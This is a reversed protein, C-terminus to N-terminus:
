EQVVTKNLLQKIYKKYYYLKNIKETLELSKKQVSLNNGLKIISLASLFIAFAYFNSKSWRQSM